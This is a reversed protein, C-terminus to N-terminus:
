LGVLSHLLAVLQPMQTMQVRKALVFGLVAGPALCVAIIWYSNVADSCITALVALAMGLIGLVNGRKASDKNSLGSLALIFLVAAGLYIAHVWQSSM